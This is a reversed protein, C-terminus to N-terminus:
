GPQRQLRLFDAVASRCDQMVPGGTAVYKTIDLVSYPPRWAPANYRASSIREVRCRSGTQRMIEEAFEFWSLGGQNAVHFTGQKQQAILHLLAPVLEPVATPCCIQDDVVEIKERTTGLQIMTNVFNRTENPCAAAYLGCTRIVLHHPNLRAESESQAKSDAYVGRAAIADHEQFPTRQSSGSFVYDTSLQVLLANQALTAKALNAVGQQNVAYCTKPCTEAEDVATYAATNIVVDPALQEVRQRVRAADTIDFDPLDLPCARTGLTQCLAFGLQGKAGTVAIRQPLKKLIENLM